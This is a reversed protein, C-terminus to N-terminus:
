KSLAVIVAILSLVGSFIPLSESIPDRVLATVEKTPEVYVIDNQKLYFYPSKFVDPSKINLYGFERNGEQERIVLIKERQSYPTLDGAQGLAELITIREGPVSITGPKNVEGLVTCRFNVFRIIVVPDILYTSLKVAIKEKAQDITLGGVNMQGLVPLDVNGAADVLYGSLSPNTVALQNATQFGVGGFLNFPEATAQDLAKVMISLVDDTQIKIRTANEVPHGQLAVFEETNRFNLLQPYKVCSSLMVVALITLSVSLMRCSPFTPNKFSTM